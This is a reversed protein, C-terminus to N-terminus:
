PQWFSDAPIAFNLSQNLRERGALVLTTIGIVNGRADFLGGGSSGPSIPATTQVFNHGEETRLGSLLGNSLTLELGSPSGLTYTQEGVALDKYARVGRVPTLNGEAVTLVCRDTAPDARGLKATTQWTKQKLILKQAGEVVHCNTLLQTKSVAVASGQSRRRTSFAEVQVVSPALLKFLAQADLVPGATAPPPTEGGVSWEPWGGSPAVLGGSGGKRSPEAWALEEEYSEVFHRVELLQEPRLSWRQQCARLAFREAVGLERLLEQSLATKLVALVNNRAFTAKPTDIRQGNIMLDLTCGELGSDSDRSVLWLQVAGKKEVATARLKLLVQNELRIDVQIVKGESKGEQASGQADTQAVRTSDAPVSSNTNEAVPEPEVYPVCNGACEYASTRNCGSASYRGGGLEKVEVENCAYESAFLSRVEQAHVSCGAVGILLCASLLVKIGLM